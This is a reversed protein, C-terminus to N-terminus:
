IIKKNSEIVWVKEKDPKSLKQDIFFRALKKKKKMGLPYFYDGQKWPRLIVPFVIESSDLSAIWDSKGTEINASRTIKLKGESFLIEACEEDIIITSSDSTVIPTIILWGRNKIIQHSCSATFKGTESDLLDIVENVQQSTFSYDKIIEYIITHLPESKKLKLVPIHVETGKIELLKKKHAEISQNYLLEADRFRSINALINKEAEPFHRTVFPIFTNRFYNRTFDNEANTYDLVFELQNEQQYHELDIRRTFLLPRILKGQKPLMGRLGKIGTGRFFHMLVTEINDDAHHATLLYSFHQEKLLEYFWNYRLDRATEEISKKNQKAIANTDFEKSFFTVGYKAALDKVFLEDRNSDEGRLHFNCHAIAFDYDGLKCLHALVASDLGGSVALLLKDKASFLHNKKIYNNFSQNLNMTEREFHSIKTHM